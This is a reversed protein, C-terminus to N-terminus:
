TTCNESKGMKNQQLAGRKKHQKIVTSTTEAYKKTVTTTEVPREDGYNQCLTKQKTKASTKQLTHTWDKHPVALLKNVSRALCLQKQPEVTPSKFQVLSLSIIVVLLQLSFTLPWHRTLFIVLRHSRLVKEKKQRLSFYIPLIIQWFIGIKRASNKIWELM